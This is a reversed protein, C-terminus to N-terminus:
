ENVDLLQALWNNDKVVVKGEREEGNISSIGDEFQKSKALKHAKAKEKFAKLKEPHKIQNHITEHYKHTWNVMNERYRSIQNYSKERAGRDAKYKKLKELKEKSYHRHFQEKDDNRSIRKQDFVLSKKLPVEEEGQFEEQSKEVSVPNKIRGSSEPFKLKIKLESSDLIRGDKTTEAPIPGFNSKKRKNTNQVTLFLNENGHEEKEAKEEVRQLENQSSIYINKHVTRKENQKLM